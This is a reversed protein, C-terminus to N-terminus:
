LPGYRQSFEFPLRSSWLIPSCFVGRALQALGCRWLFRISAALFQLIPSTLTVVLCGPFMGVYATLHSFIWSPTPVSLMFAHFAAPYLFTSFVGILFLVVASFAGCGCLSGSLLSFFPFPLVLGWSPFVFRLCLRLRTQALTSPMWIPPPWSPLSGCHWRSSNRLPISAFGRWLLWPASVPFLSAFRIARSGAELDRARKGQSPAHSASRSRSVPVPIVSVRVVTGRAPSGLFLRGFPTLGVVM